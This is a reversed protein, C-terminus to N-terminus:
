GLLDEYSTTFNTEPGEVTTADVTLSGNSIIDSLLMIDNTEVSTYEIKPETYKM